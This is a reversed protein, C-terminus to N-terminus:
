AKPVSITVEIADPYPNSLFAKHVYLSSLAQRHETVSDYRVSHKKEEHLELTVTVPKM